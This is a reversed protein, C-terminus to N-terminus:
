SCTLAERAEEVHCDCPGELWFDRDPHKRTEVRCSPRHRMAGIERLAAELRKIRQVSSGNDRQQHEANRKWFAKDRELEGVRARSAELARLLERADESTVYEGDTGVILHWRTLEEETLPLPPTDRDSM